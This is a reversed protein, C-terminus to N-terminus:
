VAVMASLNEAPEQNLITRKLFLEARQPELQERLFVDVGPISLITQCAECSSSYGEQLLGGRGAQRLSEALYAPGNALALANFVPDWEARQLIAGLPEERLNGM